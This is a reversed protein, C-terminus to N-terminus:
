AQAFGPAAARVVPSRDPHDQASPAPQQAEQLAKFALDTALKFSQSCNLFLRPSECLAPLSNSKRCCTRAFTKPSVRQETDSGATLSPSWRATLSFGRASRVPDPVHCSWPLLGCRQSCLSGYAARTPSDANGRYFGDALRYRASSKVTANHRHNRGLCLTLPSPAPAIWERVEVPVKPETRERTPQPM